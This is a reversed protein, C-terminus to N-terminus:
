FAFYIFYATTTTSERISDRSDISSSRAEKARVEHKSVLMRVWLRKVTLRFAQRRSAAEAFAPAEHGYGQGAIAAEM